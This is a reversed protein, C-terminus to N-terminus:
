ASETLRVLVAGAAVAAGGALGGLGLTLAISRWLATRGVAFGTTELPNPARFPNSRSADRRLGTRSM